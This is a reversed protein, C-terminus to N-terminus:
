FNGQQTLLNYAVYKTQLL